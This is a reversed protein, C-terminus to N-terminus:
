DTLEVTNVYYMGGKAVIEPINKDFCYDIAKQKTIFATVARPKSKVAFRAPQYNVVHIKM